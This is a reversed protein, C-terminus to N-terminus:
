APQIGIPTGRQPFAVNVEFIGIKIFTYNRVDIKFVWHIKWQYTIICTVMRKCFQQKIQWFKRIYLTKVTKNKPVVMQKQTSFQIVQLRDGKHDTKCNRLTSRSLTSIEYLPKCKMSQPRQTMGLLIIHSIKLASHIKLLMIAFFTGCLLLM